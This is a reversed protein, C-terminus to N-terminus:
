MRKSFFKIAIPLEEETSFRTLKVALRNSHTNVDNLDSGMDIMLNENIFLSRPVYFKVSLSTFVYPSSNKYSLESIVILDPSYFTSTIIKKKSEIIFNGSVDRISLDFSKTLETTIEVGYFSLTYQINEPYLEDALLSV